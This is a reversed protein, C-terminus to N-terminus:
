TKGTPCQTEGELATDIYNDVYNSLMNVLAFLGETTGVHDMTQLEEQLHLLMRDRAEIDQKLSHNVGELKFKDKELDRIREDWMDSMAQNPTRVRSNDTAM